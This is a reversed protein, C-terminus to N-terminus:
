VSAIADPLDKETSKMENQDPECLALLPCAPATRKELEDFSDEYLSISM